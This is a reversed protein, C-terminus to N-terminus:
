EPNRMIWRELQVAQLLHRSWRHEPSLPESAPPSPDLYTALSRQVVASWTPLDTRRSWLRGTLRWGLHQKDTRLRVPEPMRGAMALRLIPKTWGERLRQRDPLNVCLELLRRESFPALPTIGHRAAVRAYREAGAVPFTHQLAEAAEATTDLPIRSRLSRIQRLRDEAGTRDAFAPDLRAGAMVEERWRRERRPTVLGRLWNPVLAARLPVRLHQWPRGGFRALGKANDWAARWHGARIQRRLTSGPLFLCDGNGGDIVADVGAGAANAYQADLLAMSADFPEDFEELFRELEPLLEGLEALDVLHPQFGPYQLAARVARTELCDPRSSDIGSFTPLPGRGAAQLQDAAIIALSTSDLGGSLMSGARGPGALCQAVAREMAETLAEAWGEDTTPLPGARGPELQWYRRSHASQPTIRLLHRPPHRQVARHFTTTFDVGELGGGAVELLYDAIRREDLDQPVRSHALVAHASSGFVLLKGPVHHVYLPREGMRDRALYLCQRRPDHVAFAFDGDIREVCDEGWRLWTHLILHAAHDTTRDPAEDPAPLDLAARLEAPNDLRADAIAVCGSDPHIAICSPAALGPQPSWWASGFALNGDGATWARRIAHGPAPRAAQMAELTGARTPAGDLAWYGCISKM